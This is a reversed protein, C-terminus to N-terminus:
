ALGPNGAPLANRQGAFGVAAFVDAHPCRRAAARHTAADFLVRDEVDRCALRAQALARRSPGTRHSRRVPSAAPSRAKLGRQLAYRPKKSRSALALHVDRVAGAGAGRQVLAAGDVTVAATMSAEALARRRHLVGAARSWALLTCGAAAIGFHLWLMGLVVAIGFM